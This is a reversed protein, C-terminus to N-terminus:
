NPDVEHALKERLKFEELDILSLYKRILEEDFEARHNMEKLLRRQQDLLELYVRQYSTLPNETTYNLAEINQQFFNLDIQMRAFLNNLHENHMREQSYKEELLQLSTLAIKKQIILEQKQGPIPTHNDKLKVKRILWPLTLGQFVLTILIVIFTIFLILNRYPFPQGGQIVLPISLAAALSVVGRMGAWGAILPGRWGPNPDAVTIVHSMLRTFISAGLACLLRTLILAFSIVLGYWIARELSIDGLQQIISPLQLGILMFVLGNLVFVMNSWVNVGEIRSQYTLMSQRRSSLLLGGSVVALVGSFHFHEAAFYMCYPTVLTLVIDISPTTPLWRHICYFIAGVLLGIMTGLVIVLIFSTAAQQFYFQGTVVAALAFRFVILSSADNLLSEGEIISVLSKPVKVQRMITTASVADPPSIIGGLLFGLALTFGPILANSILAIVCSTIIVIPFAFSTIVRRWKWFEKWSVQWAAEYLLPPLFIFFVLEPDITIASFQAMFSLMLGGLVLVIPYAIRLRNAIMVLALIILILYVYQTLFSQM